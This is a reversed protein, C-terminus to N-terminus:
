GLICSFHRLILLRISSRLPTLRPPLPAWLTPPVPTAPPSRPAPTRLPVLPILTGLPVLPYWPAWPPLFPLLPGSPPPDLYTPSFPTPPSLLSCSPHFPLLRFNPFLSNPLHSPLLHPLPGPPHLSCTFTSCASHFPLLHSNLFLSYSSYSTLPNLSPSPPILLSCTPALPTLPTSVGHPDSAM